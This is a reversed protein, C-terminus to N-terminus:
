TLEVMILINWSSKTCWGLTVCIISGLSILGQHKRSLGWVSEAFVLEQGWLILSESKIPGFCHIHSLYLYSLLLLCFLQSLVLRMQSLFLFFQGCKKVYKQDPSNKGYTSLILVWFWCTMTHTPTLICVPVLKMQRNSKFPILSPIDSSLYLM